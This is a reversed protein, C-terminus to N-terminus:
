RLLDAPKFVVRGDVPQGNDLGPYFRVFRMLSLVQPSVNRQGADDYSLSVLSGTKDVRAFVEQDLGSRDLKPLIEGLPAFLMPSPPSSKGRNRSLYDVIYYQYAQEESMPMQMESLNTAVQQNSAYLDLVCGILRFGRPLGTIPFSVRRPKNDLRGIPHLAITQFRGDPSRPDVYRLTAALYANDLPRPSSIACKLEIGDAAADHQYSFPLAPAPQSSLSKGRGRDVSRGQGEGDRQREMLRSMADRVDDVTRRAETTDSFQQTRQEESRAALAFSDDHVLEAELQELQIEQNRVATMAALDMQRAKNDVAARISEASLKEITAKVTSLKLGRMLQFSTVRGLPVVSSETGSKLELSGRTAGVVRHQKGAFNAMVEAGVFLTYQSPVETTPSPENKAAAACTGLLLLFARNM